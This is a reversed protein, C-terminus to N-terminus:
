RAGGALQDGRCGGCNHVLWGPHTPCQDSRNAPPLAAGRREVRAPQPSEPNPKRFQWWALRGSEDRPASGPGEGKLGGESKPHRDHTDGGGPQDSVGGHQDTVGSASETVGQGTLIRYVRTAIGAVMRWALRGLNVLKVIARQVTRESCDAYEAITAVSPWSDGAKNQHAAIAILVLRENKGLDRSALMATKVAQSM